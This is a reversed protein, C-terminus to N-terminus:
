AATLTNSEAFLIDSRGASRTHADLRDLEVLALYYYIHGLDFLVAFHKGNRLVAVALTGVYALVSQLTSSTATDLDAYEVVLGAVYDVELEYM